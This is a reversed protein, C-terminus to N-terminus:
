QRPLLPRRELGLERARAEEKRADADDLVAGADLKGLLSQRLPPEYPSSGKRWMPNSKESEREAPVGAEALRADRAPAVFPLPEVTAAGGDLALKTAQLVVVPQRDEADAAELAHPEV